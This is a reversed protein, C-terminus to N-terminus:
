FKVDMSTLNQRRFDSGASFPNPTDIEMFPFIKKCKFSSIVNHIETWFAIFFRFCTSLIRTISYYVPGNSIHQLFIEVDNVYWKFVHKMFIEM